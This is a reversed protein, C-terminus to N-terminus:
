PTGGKQIAAIAEACAEEATLGQGCALVKREPDDERPKTCLWAMWDTRRTYALEFYCYPYEGLLENHMAILRKIPDAARPKAVLRQGAQRIDQGIDIHCGDATDYMCGDWQQAIQEVVDPAVVVPPPDSEVAEVAHRVALSVYRDIRAAIREKLQESSRPSIGCDSMVLGALELACHDFPIELAPPQAEQERGATPDHPDIPYVGEEPYEADSIALVPGVNLNGDDDRVTGPMRVELTLETDDDGMSEAGRVLEAALALITKKNMNWTTEM